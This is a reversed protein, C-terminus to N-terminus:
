NKSMRVAPSSFTLSTRLVLPFLVMFFPLILDQIFRSYKWLRTLIFVFLRRLPNGTLLYALERQTEPEAILAIIIFKIFNRLIRIVRRYASKLMHFRGKEAVVEIEVEEVINKPRERRTPVMKQAPDRLLTATYEDVLLALCANLDRRALYVHYPTRNGCKREIWDLQLENIEYPEGCVRKVLMTKIDHPLSDWEQDFDTELGMHRVLETDRSKLILLLESPSSMDLQRQIRLPLRLEETSTILLEALVADSHSLGLGVECTEHVIAEAISDNTEFRPLTPLCSLAIVCSRQHHLEDDM